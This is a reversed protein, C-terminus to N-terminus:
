LENDEVRDLDGSFMAYLNLVYTNSQTTDYVITVRGSPPIGLKEQADILKEEFKEVSSITFNLDPLMGRGKEQM